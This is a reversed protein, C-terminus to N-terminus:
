FPTELNREARQQVTYEFFFEARDKWYQIDDLSMIELENEFESAPAMRGLIRHYGSDHLYVYVSLRKGVLVSPDDNIRAYKTNGNEAVEVIGANAFRFLNGVAFEQGTNGNFTEYVRLNLTEPLGEFFVDIYKVDNWVGFEAHSVSVVQWGEQFQVGMRNIQLERM